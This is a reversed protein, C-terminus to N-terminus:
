ASFAARIEWFHYFVLSQESHLFNSSVFFTARFVLLQWFTASLGLWLQCPYYFSFILPGWKRKIIFTSFAPSANSIVLQWLIASQGQLNDGFYELWGTFSWNEAEFKDIKSCPVSIQSSHSSLPTVPNIEKNVHEFDRGPSLILSLLFLISYWRDPSIPYFRSIFIYQQRTSHRFPIEVTRHGVVTVDFIFQQCWFCIAWMLFLNNVDFVFQECWFCIAWMLFLNSVDFVFQECWIWIAWM